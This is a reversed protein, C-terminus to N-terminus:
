VDHIMGPHIMYGRYKIRGTDRWSADYIMCALLIFMGTHIFVRIYKTRQLGGTSILMTPHAQAFWIWLMSVEYAFTRCITAM